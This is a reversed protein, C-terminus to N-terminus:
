LQTVIEISHDALSNDQDFLFSAKLLDGKLLQPLWISDDPWMQDFPIESLHFWQPRMEETETPAGEWSQSIFTHVEQNSSPEHPFYFSLVAKKQLQHPLVGIEEQMERIATEEITEGNNPKGGVGNWKGVGFGRKKMALLIENEKLLFILTAQRLPSSLKKKYDPLNM